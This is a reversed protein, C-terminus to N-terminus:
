SRSRRPKPACTHYTRVGARKAGSSDTVTVTVRFTGKPLGTLDIPLGLAKGRVSRVTKTNLRIQAAVVRTAKINRLRIRFRRRSVCAKAGPLAAITTIGVQTVAPKAAPVTFPCQVTTANGAVDRGTVAVTHSGAGTTDAPATVTAQAPGSGADTVGASVFGSAGVALAPAGQCAVAPATADRRVTVSKSSSGGASTAQCTLTASGEAIAANDCGTRARIVSEDAITWSVQASGTLWGDNGTAGTVLPTIAPPTVDPYDAGTLYRVEDVSGSVEAGPTNTGGILTAGITVPDNEGDTDSLAGDAGANLPREAVEIGDAYLALVQADVDRVMTVRHFAGDNLLPGATVVEGSGEDAPGSADTDRVDGYARGDYVLLQWVSNAQSSPCFNGCEYLVALTAQQHGSDPVPATTAIWGDVTFSGSPYFSPNSPIRIYDGTGDFAFAQGLHGAGFAADGMLTGDSSDAGSVGDTAAGDGHYVHVLTGAAPAAPPGALAFVLAAASLAAICRPPGTRSRIRM